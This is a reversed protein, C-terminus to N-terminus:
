AAVLKKRYLRGLKHTGNSATKQNRLFKLYPKSLKLGNRRAFTSPSPGCVAPSKDDLAVLEEMSRIRRSALKMKM